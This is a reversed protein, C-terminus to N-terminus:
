TQLAGAYNSAIKKNTRTTSTSKLDHDLGLKISQRQFWNAGARPARPRMFREHAIAEGFYDDDFAGGGFLM